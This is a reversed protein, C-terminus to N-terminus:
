VLAKTPLTLHTYSVAFAAPPAFVHELRLVADAVPEVLTKARDTLILERGVPVLLPDDFHARLQGLAHSMASQSRGLERGARTVNRHSLLARLAVVLNTDIGRLPMRAITLQRTSAPGHVALRQSFTDRPPRHGGDLEPRDDVVDEALELGGVGPVHEM